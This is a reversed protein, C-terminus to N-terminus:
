SVSFGSWYMEPATGITLSTPGNAYLNTVVLLWSGVSLTSVGILFHPSVTIIDKTCTSIHSHNYPQEM